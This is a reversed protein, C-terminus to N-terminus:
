AAKSARRVAAFLEELEFPKPLFQMGGDSAWERGQPSASMAVVRAGNARSRLDREFRPGDDPMRMDLLIVAPSTESVAKLGETASAALTVEYGVDTLAKSIFARIGRDDDIVLIHSGM